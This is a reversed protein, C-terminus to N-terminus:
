QTLGSLDCLEQKTLGVWYDMDEVAILTVDAMGEWDSGKEGRGRREIEEKLKGMLRHIGRLKGTGLTKEERPVFLKMDDLHCRERLGGKRVRVVKGSQIDILRATRGHWAIDGLLYPGEWQAELKKGKHKDVEFRRLLVLDGEELRQWRGREKETVATHDLNRYLALNRSEDLCALRVDYDVKKLEYDYVTRQPAESILSALAALVIEDRGTPRGFGTTRPQFGFLLQAPSYGQVSLQRINIAQVVTPVCEFWRKVPYRNQIITTRLGTMLIQVYRESLGVSSPHTKPAPFHHVLNDQLLRAFVGSVFHPGNDTYVSGPWGFPRVVQDLLLRVAFEGTANTAPAAFLFRSFYDVAIIIYKFGSPITAPTIPGIFDMGVMDFPQLQLIPLLGASPRLPGVMQCNRCTRCYVHIDRVRTPWYYRGITLKLLLGAAFHGHCDHLRYLIDHISEFKVCVSLEGNQERYLLRNGCILPTALVLLFNRSSRRLVRRVNRSNGIKRDAGLLGDLSGTLKYYIIPAYWDEKLWEDWGELRQDGKLQTEKQSDNHKDAEEIGFVEREVQRESRGLRSLGDAIVNQSGPIHVYEVDFESLRVQWRAIRGHADDKQLLWILTKHDTYVKTSFPSGLILWHVEELARVVALAERETASYRTEPKTFPKSIFMVIRQKNRNKPSALTGAPLDILQLLVAGVGTRSADTALHYQRGNDGGYVANSIIANKIHNFSKQQLEGWQFGAVTRRNKGTRLRSVRGPAEKRRKVESKKRCKESSGRSGMETGEEVAGGQEQGKQLGKQKQEEEKYIIANKLICAHDARGPIFYRLYKTMFLFQELEEQNMPTPYERIAQVKDLSPRLGQGKTQFGLPEITDLLFGCKTPKLTMKAWHLRPFYWYHMFELQASASTHAAFDDDIFHEFSGSSVRNLGQEVFPFPIPGAFLDKLRSYTQPAGSLGQGMRKYQFQGLSTAFATKYSHQPFLPVAWFGNAADAQLFVKYKAQTLNNVVPEIRRMPYSHNITAANIPCFVHVMRLEKDKKRVFKTRHSWPSVAHEIIGAALMEPIRQEMWTVEEQTFLKDRARVPISRPWTPIYHCVLDTPPM